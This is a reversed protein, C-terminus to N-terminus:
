PTEKEAATRAPESESLHGGHLDLTRNAMREAQGAAHSVWVLARATADRDIWDDVLREAAQRMDSDMASTPEDLLLVEPDFQLARLLAVAQLEGGSLREIQEDLFREGRGLASLSRSALQRDFQRDRHMGLTFPRRLADAVRGEGLRARQHLYVVRSRFRPVDPPSVPEGHFLIEGQDAPDLMAMQRLLLTKGAGSPGRLLVRDGSALTLCIDRLLWRRRDGTRRGVHSLELIPPASMREALHTVIWSGRRGSPSCTQARYNESTSGGLM